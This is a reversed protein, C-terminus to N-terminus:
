IIAHRTIEKIHHDLLPGAAMRARLVVTLGGSVDSRLERTLSDVPMETLEALHDTSRELQGQLDEFLPREPANNDMYYSQVYTYKLVRRCQTPLRPM